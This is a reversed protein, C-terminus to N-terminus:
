ELKPVLKFIRLLRVCRLVSLGFRPAGLSLHVVTEIISALVVLFDLRNFRSMFYGHVGLGYLKALMELTFLVVFLVNSIELLDDMWKPQGHHEAALCATNSVVFMIVAWCFTQSKVMRQVVEQCTTNFEKLHDWAAKCRQRLGACPGIGGCGAQELTVDESLCEEIM